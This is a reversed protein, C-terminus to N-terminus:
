DACGLSAPVHEGSLCLKFAILDAQDVDEDGDLRADQCEPDTTPITSAGLCAQLHAFDTQDVDGDRDFDAAPSLPCGSGDVAAGAITGPCADCADGVGDSDADAQDPNAASPCNDCGSARGDLDPDVGDEHGPCVDCADGVGDADSDEQQPNATSPCTDLHDHIGDGDSDLPQIKLVLLTIEADEMTFPFNAVEFGATVDQQDWTMGSSTILSTDGGASDPGAKGYHKLTASVLQCSGLSLQVTTPQADDFNLGWISITSEDSSDGTVYIRANSNGSPYGMEDGSAVLTDGMHEVLAAFTDRVGLVRNPKAWYGGALVGDEAFAFCTEATGLAAAMSAQMYEPADWNVANWESAIFDCTRGHASLIARMGATRANLYSRYDRLASTMGEPNGWFSKITGYYPHYAVFDLQVAPDAALASLWQGSGAPDSPSILCPGLKLTPDVALMAAGISKYRDRYATPSLSHNTLFSGTSGLEPENGIEWYQVRPVAPAGSQLLRPKVGWGGISDHVRLDEGSLSAEDGQRYSQLINNTYRVWDAALGEGNVPQCVFVGPNPPDAWDRFGGGFVNATILPAAQHAAAQQLFELTSYRGSWAPTGWGSGSDLDRWDYCDADLGGAVGRAMSGITRDWIVGWEDGGVSRFPCQGRVWPSFPAGRYPNIVPITGTTSGSAGESWASPHYGPTNRFARAQFTYHTNPLLGTVTTTGWSERSQWRPGTNLTGDPQVFMRGGVSPAIMIAYLDTASDASDIAVSVSNAWLAAVVPPRPTECAVTPPGSVVDFTAQGDIWGVAYSADAAWTDADNMVPNYAWAPKATFTWSVTRSGSGSSANGANSLLCGLPTMFSAGSWVDTRYGWRGGGVADALVWAGGYQAVDADSKGWAMLGRGQSQDGNAETYNFLVRVCRIDNYGDVGSFTVTVTYPTADDAVLPTVTVQPSSTLVPPTAASAAGLLSGAVGLFVLLKVPNIGM